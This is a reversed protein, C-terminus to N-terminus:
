VKKGIAGPLSGSANKKHRLFEFAVTKDLIRAYAEQTTNINAHGLVKAVVEIPYGDNLLVMGCTRRGYHSAIPKDIGAAQAVVKLRLNYQQNAMKPTTYDYRSLIAKAKDTLVTVYGVGTKNRESSLITVGNIDETARWDVSMLDSYALGTYCQLLFLDRVRSLSGSPMPAAELRALEEVTLFKGWESKGREGRFGLYPDKEILDRRMAEHVYTKLTKHYSWITTPKLGRTHLWDDFRIVNAKTLDGFELIIGSEALAGVLKRQTRRSTDRIDTRTMIRDDLWDLFSTKREKETGLWREFNDFTFETGSEALKSLYEDVRSKLAQIRKNLAPADLRNIVGDRERWQGAMVKVGTSIYKRKRCHMVELQILGPKTKTAVKKRDWVLRTVAQKILIM